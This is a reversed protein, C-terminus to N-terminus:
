GQLIKEAEILGSPSLKCVPVDYEILREKHLKKLIKSKFVSFNTYEVSKFLEEDTKDNIYLLCLVQKRAPMKTDLVRQIKGTDWILDIEKNTIQRIINITEDPALHSINQIIEALLWKVQSLLLTADIENPDMGSLHVGGRKNRICYMSFLIRPMIIRFTEKINPTQEWQNLEKPSFKPLQTNLDIYNGTVEFNIVRFCAENFQGITGICNKWDKKRYELLIKSYLETLKDALEKQYRGSLINNIRSLM